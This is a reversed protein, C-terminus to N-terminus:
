LDINKVSSSNIKKSQENLKINDYTSPLREYSALRQAVRPDPYEFNVTSQNPTNPGTRRRRESNLEGSVYRPQYKTNNASFGYSPDEFSRIKKKTEASNSGDTTRTKNSDTMM